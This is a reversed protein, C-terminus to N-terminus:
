VTEGIHITGSDAEFSVIEPPVIVEPTVVLTDSVEESWDGNNDQVKLYVIHEGVTLASTVVSENVGLPGDINSRWRYAVITGDTDIGHGQLTVDEGITITPPAVADIYAVPPENGAPPEEQPTSPEEEPPIIDPVSPSFCGTVTFMLLVALASIFIKKMVSGGSILLLHKHSPANLLELPDVLSLRRM